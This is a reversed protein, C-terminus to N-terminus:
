RFRELGYWTSRVPERTRPDILGVQKLLETKRHEGQMGVVRHGYDRAIPTKPSRTFFLM